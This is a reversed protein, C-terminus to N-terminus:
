VEYTGAAIWADDAAAARNTVLALAVPRGLTHGFAASSVFGVAEGDRLVLEGGWLNTQPADVVLSVIRRRAAQAGGAQKLPLLAARGRFEKSWDIAFALGAEFPTVDPSLERGWARYGKELRLSEIAYYGADRLGLGAGAECLTEYVGVAFEVPVYLEWGPEGVYTLRTARVTAYGVDVERSTGFPFAANSWDATSVRQMLARANPGMVGLVAYQNTVDVVVAHPPGPLEAFGRELVDRDRIAQASGTVILFEDDAIRTVTFDSEYGGRGNLMGTYVTRGVPVAVNGAVLAQLAREADRGKVLLKAFSSMDFLAVAERCARHEAAVWGHWNQHGWGY